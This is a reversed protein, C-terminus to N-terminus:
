GTVKTEVVVTVTVGGFHAVSTEAAVTGTLNVSTKEGAVGMLAVGTVRGRWVLGRKRYLQLGQWIM